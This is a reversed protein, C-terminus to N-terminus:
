LTVMASRIGHKSPNNKNGVDVKRIWRLDGVLAERHLCRVGWRPCTPRFCSETPSDHYYLVAPEYNQGLARPNMTRFTKTNSNHNHNEEIESFCSALIFIHSDIGALM